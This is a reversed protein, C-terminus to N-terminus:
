LPMKFLVWFIQCKAVHCPAAHLWPVAAGLALAVINAEKELELLGLCTAVETEAAAVVIHSRM